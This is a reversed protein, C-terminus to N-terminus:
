DTTSTMSSVGGGFPAPGLEAKLREMSIRVGARASFNVVKECSLCAKHIVANDKKARDPRKGDSNGGMGLWGRM